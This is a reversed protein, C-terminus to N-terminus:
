VVPIATLSHVSPDEGSADKLRFGHPERGLLRVSKLRGPM